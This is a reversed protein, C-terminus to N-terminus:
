KKLLSIQFELHKIERLLANKDFQNWGWTKMLAMAVFGLITYTMWELKDNLVETALLETFTCNVWINNANCHDNFREDNSIKM